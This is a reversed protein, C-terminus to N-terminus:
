ESRMVRVEGSSTDVNTEGDVYSAFFKMTDGEKRRVIMDYDVGIALGKSHGSKIVFDDM